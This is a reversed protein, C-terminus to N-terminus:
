KDEYGDEYVEDEIDGDEEEKSASISAMIVEFREMEDSLSGYTDEIQETCCFRCFDTFDEEEVGYIAQYKKPDVTCFAPRNDYNTCLRREKDFHVLLFAFIFLDKLYYYTLKFNPYCVVGTTQAM